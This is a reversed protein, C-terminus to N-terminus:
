HQRHSSAHRMSLWCGIWGQHFSRVFSLTILESFHYFYVYYTTFIQFMNGPFKNFYADKYKKGDADNWFHTPM